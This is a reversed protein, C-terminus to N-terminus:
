TRKEFCHTETLTVYHQKLLKCLAAIQNSSVGLLSTQAASVTESFYYNRIEKPSLPTKEEIYM